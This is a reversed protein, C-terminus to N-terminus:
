LDHTSAPFSPPILAFSASFFLVVRISLVFTGVGKSSSTFYTSVTHPVFVCRSPRRRSTTPRKRGLSHCVVSVPTLFVSGPPPVCSGRACASCHTRESAFHFSRFLCARRNWRTRSSWGVAEADVPTRTMSSVPSRASPWLVAGIPLCPHTRDPRQSWSTPPRLPRKGPQHRVRCGPEGHHSPLPRDRMRPGYARDCQSHDLPRV